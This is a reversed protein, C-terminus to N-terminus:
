ENPYQDIDAVDIELALDTIDLKGANHTVASSYNKEIDLGM